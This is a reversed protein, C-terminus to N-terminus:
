GVGARNDAASDPSRLPCGPDLSFLPAGLGACAARCGGCLARHVCDACDPAARDAICRATPHGLAVDLFGEVPPIRTLAEGLPHCPTVRGDVQVCLRERGAECQWLLHHPVGHMELLPNWTPGDAVRVPLGEGVLNAIERAV